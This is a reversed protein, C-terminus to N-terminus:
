KCLVQYDDMRNVDKKVSYMFPLQKCSQYEINFVPKGLDRYIDCENFQQCQENQYVDVVNFMKQIDNLGNKQSVLLGMEKAKAFIKYIYDSYGRYVTKSKDFTDGDINDLDIGQCKDKAMELRKFMVQLNKPDNPDVWKEGVWTDLSGGLRGFQNFDPRWNEYQSSFYCLTKAGKAACKQFTEKSVDFMDFVVYDYKECKTLDLETTYNLYTTKIPNVSSPITPEPIPNTPKSPNTGCSVALLLVALLFLKM